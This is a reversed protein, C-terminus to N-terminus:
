RAGTARPAARRAPPGFTVPELGAVAGRPPPSPCPELTEGPTAHRPGTRDGSLGTRPMPSQGLHNPPVSCSQPPIPSGPAPLSAGPPCDGVEAPLTRGQLGHTSPQTTVMSSSKIPCPSILVATQEVGSIQPHPSCGMTLSCVQGWTPLAPAPASYMGAAVVLGVWHPHGAAVQQPHPVM